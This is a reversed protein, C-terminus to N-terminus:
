HSPVAPVITLKTKAPLNAGARVSAEVFVTPPNPVDAPATYLGEDTITGCSQKSCAPGSLTWTVSNDNIGKGSASFQQTSGAGVEAVQRPSITISQPNYYYYFRLHLSEGPFAKPLPDFPYSATISAWAARDLPVDKSSSDVEMNAVKGNKLIFFEISVKGQKLNPPYVSPPMLEYWNKKVTQVVRALYPGFDVGQTDTLVELQNLAHPNTASQSQAYSLGTMVIVFVGLLAPRKPM